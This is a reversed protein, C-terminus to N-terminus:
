RGDGDKNRRCCFECACPHYGEMVMKIGEVVSSV